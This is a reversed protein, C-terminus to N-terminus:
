VITCHLFGITFPIKSLIVTCWKLVLQFMNFMHVFKMSSCFLKVINKENQTV